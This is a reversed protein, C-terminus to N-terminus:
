IWEKYYQPFCSLFRQIEVKEEKIYLMFWLLDLIKNILDEINMQSLKLKYLEKTNREYSSELLYIKKFFKKFKSWELNNEKIEQSINLDQWWINARGKLTYIDM